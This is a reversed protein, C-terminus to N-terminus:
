AKSEENIQAPPEFPFSQEMKQGVQKKDTLALIIQKHDTFTNTSGKWEKFLELGKPCEDDFKNFDTANAQGPGLVLRGIADLTFVMELFENKCVVKEGEKIQGGQILNFYEGPDMGIEDKIKESIWINIDKTSHITTKKTGSLVAKAYKALRNWFDKLNDKSMASIFPIFNKDYIHLTALKLIKKRIYPIEKNENYKREIYQKSMYFNWEIGNTLIGWPLDHNKEMYRVMQEEHSKLSKNDLAKAEVLLSYDDKNSDQIIIDFRQDLQTESSAEIKFDTLPDFNLVVEFLPFVVCYETGKEKLRQCLETWDDVNEEKGKNQYLKIIHELRKNFNQQTLEM